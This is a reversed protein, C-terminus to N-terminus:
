ALDTRKEVPCVLELSKKPNHWGYLAKYSRGSVTVHTSLDDDDEDILDVVGIDGDRNASKRVNDGIVKVVDGERVEGIERGARLFSMERERTDGRGIIKFERSLIVGSHKDTKIVDGDKDVEIVTMIDGNGYNGEIVDKHYADIIKIRDGIQAPKLFTKPGFEYEDNVPDGESILRQLKAVEEAIGEIVTGDNLTMKIIRDNTKTMSDAREVLEYENIYAWGGVGDNDGMYTFGQEYSLYGSPMYERVTVIEGTEKNRVKDGMRWEKAMGVGELTM